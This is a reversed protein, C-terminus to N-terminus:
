KAKRLARWATELPGPDVFAAPDKGRGGKAYELATKIPATSPVPDDPLVRVLARYTADLVRADHTHTYLTFIGKTGSPHTKIYQIAQLYAKLFAVVTDPHQGVFKRTSVIGDGPYPIHLDWLNLVESGGAEVAIINSPPSVLIAQVLGRRLAAVQAPVSGLYTLHIDKQPTLGRQRLVAQLVFDDSTGAKTLGITKQRLDNLSGIGPVAVLRQNAFPIHTALVVTDFGKLQAQVSAVPTTDLIAVDGASLAAIATVSGAIYSLHVDLGNQRFFGQSAAVWIPGQNATVTTWAASLATLKFSAAAAASVAPTEDAYRAAGGGRTWVATAVFVIAVAGVFKLSRDGPPAGPLGM